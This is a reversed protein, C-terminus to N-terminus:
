QARDLKDAATILLHRVTGAMRETFREERGVFTLLAVYSGKQIAYQTRGHGPWDAGGGPTDFRRVAISRDGLGPDPLTKVAYSWGYLSDREEATERIGDCLAPSEELAQFLRDSGATPLRAVVIRFEDYADGSYRYVAHAGPFSTDARRDWLDEVTRQNDHCAPSLSRPVSQLDGDVLDEADDARQWPYGLDKASLITRSALHRAYPPSAQVCNLVVFLLVAGLLVLVPAPLSTLRRVAGQHRRVGDQDEHM